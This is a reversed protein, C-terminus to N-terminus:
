CDTAQSSTVVPGVGGGAEDQVFVRRKRKQRRRRGGRSGLKQAAAAVTVVVAPLEQWGSLLAAAVPGLMSAGLKADRLGAAFPSGAKESGGGSMGLVRYGLWLWAEAMMVVLGRLLLLTPVRTGDSNVMVLGGGEECGEVLVLELVM